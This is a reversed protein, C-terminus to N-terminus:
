GPRTAAVSRAAAAWGNVLNTANVSGTGTAFDWGTGTGYARSCSASTTSLVGNRGGPLYCDTTGTCNVDMDGRTVDHFTCGSATANGSTANCSPNGASGYEAAALDYCVRNPNGQRAGERQNVLPQIGALLYPSLGNANAATFGADHKIGKLPGDLAEHTTPDEPGIAGMAPGQGNQGGESLPNPAPGDNFGPDILSQPDPPNGLVSASAAGASWTIAPGTGAPSAEVPSTGDLGYGDSRRGDHWRRVSRPGGAPNGLVFLQRVSRIRFGRGAPQGPDPPGQRPGSRDASSGPPQRSAQSGSGSPFDRISQGSATENSATSIPQSADSTDAKGGRSVGSVM